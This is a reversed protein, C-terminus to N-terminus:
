LLVAHLALMFMAERYALLRLLSSLCCFLDIIKSRMRGDPFHLAIHRETHGLDLVIVGHFATMPLVVTVGNM